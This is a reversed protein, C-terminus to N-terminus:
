LARPTESRWLVAPLVTLGAFASFVRSSPFFGIDGGVDFMLWSRPSLSVAFLFGGDRSAMPAAESFAYWEVMLGFPSVLDASLALAAYAQPRPASLRYLTGGVNLDAHVRGIDKSAYLSALADYTSSTLGPESATPVNISASLSLAPRLAGQELFRLKLGATLDDLHKSPVGSAAVTYGNSGLQAQLAPLVTLKFLFPFARLAGEEGTRYLYGAELELTGPPVLEATCAITPRCPLVRDRPGPGEFAAVPRALSLLSLLSAGVSFLEIRRPRRVM